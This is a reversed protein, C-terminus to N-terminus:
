PDGPVSDPSDQLRMFSKLTKQVPTKLGASTRNTIRGYVDQVYQRHIAWHADIHRMFDNHGIARFRRTLKLVQEDMQDLVSTIAEKQYDTYPFELLSLGLRIAQTVCDTVAMAQPAHQIIDQGWGIMVGIAALASAFAKRTSYPLCKDISEIDIKESLAITELSHSAMECLLLSLLEPHSANQSQLSGARILAPFSLYAKSKGHDDTKRLKEVEESLPGLIEKCLAQAYEQKSVGSELTQQLSGVMLRILNRIAAQLGVSFTQSVVFPDIAIFFLANITKRADDGAIKNSPLQLTSQWISMLNVMGGINLDTRSEGKSIEPLNEPPWHKTDCWTLLRGMQLFTSRVEDSLQGQEILERLVKTSEHSLNNGSSASCAMKFLWKALLNSTETGDDVLLKSIRGQSLLHMLLEEPDPATSLKTSLKAYKENSSEGLITRFEDIANKRDTFFQITDNRKPNFVITRRLGYLISGETDIAEALRKKTTIDYVGDDVHDAMGHTIENASLKPKKRVSDAAEEIRKKLDDDNIKDYNESEMRSLRQSQGVSHDASKLASDLLSKQQEKKRLAAKEKGTARKPRLNTENLISDDDSDFDM